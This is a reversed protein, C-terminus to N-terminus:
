VDLRIDSIEVKALADFDSPDILFTLENMCEFRKRSGLDKLLFRYIKKQNSIALEKTATPIAGFKDKVELIVKDLPATASISFFLSFDQDYERVWNDEFLKIASGAFQPKLQSYDATMMLVNNIIKQTLTSKAEPPHHFICASGLSIEKKALPPSSLFDCIDLVKDNRLAHPKIGTNETIDNVVDNIFTRIRDRNGDRVIIYQNKERISPPISLYRSHRSDLPKM